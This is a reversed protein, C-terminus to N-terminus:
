EADFKFLDGITFTTEEVPPIVFREREYEPEEKEEVPQQAARAEQLVARRSLSIRKNEPNIDLVKVTIVDGVQLEDEVKEIRRTAVQSIHVLGFLGPEIEVFAGFPAMRDVRGEIIDGPMYREMATDWPKPQLQKYGLAIRETEANVSLIEVEVEDGVKVIDEPHRVRGWSLDTVHILGDVGGIDTFAGFDTLRRVVGKVRQGAEFAAYKAKRKAIAEEKLVDKRSAVIRRRNKDVELAKVSLKKGVFEEINEVYREAVHSAPIFVRANLYEALLGGKVAQKVTVEFAAGGELEAIAEKEKARIDVKKKSLLVNGEGDNVKVIEVSVEDGIAFLESAVAKPDLSLEAQPIIGDAKYGINVYVDDGVISVVTGKKVQGPRIRIMTKELDREFSEQESLEAEQVPAVEAEVPAEVTATEEINQTNNLTENMRTIVERISRQPTSAGAVIGIIGNIPLIEINLDNYSEVIQTNKCANKCISFLKATNSSHRGGIVVMADCRRSLEGAERQRNETSSCITDKVTLDSCKTKLVEAIALFDAKIFTTQALLFGREIEHLAQAEGPTSVIIAKGHCFGAIGIVEPHDAKGAIIITYGKSQMEAAIKQIRAVFPCTMDICNLGKQDCLDYVKPPVGHSRLIVTDGASLAALDEVVHAGLSDLEDVVSQNHIIPGYTYVTGLEKSKEEVMAVAARVGSCFGNYKGEIIKAM